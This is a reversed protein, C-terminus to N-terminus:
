KTQNKAPEPEPDCIEQPVPECIKADVTACEEKAVDGCMEEMVTICNRGSDDNNSAGSDLLACEKDCAM